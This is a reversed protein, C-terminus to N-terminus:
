LQMMIQNTWRIAEHYASFLDDSSLDKFGIESWQGNEFALACSLAQGMPGEHEIVAIKFENSFPLDSLIAKLPKDLLLDLASFMGVSFYNDIAMGAKEALLECTKARLLAIELMAAPKNSNSSLVLLSAWKSIEKRGLFVIAHKISDIEKVTKFLPTNVLKILKYSLSADQTIIKELNELPTDNNHITALLQLLSVQSTSLEKREYIRPNGLFYGQFYDFGLDCFSKYEDVTEVKLALLSLNKYLKLYNILKSLKELSIIKVNIRFIDGLKLLRQDNLANIGGLSILYGTKKLEKLKSILKEDIVINEPIDLIVQEAQLHVDQIVDLFARTVNIAIKRQKSVGIHEPDCISSAIVQSTAKVPEFGTNEKLASRFFLEYGFVGLSGNYIPQRAILIKNSNSADDM